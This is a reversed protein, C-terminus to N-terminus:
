CPGQVIQGPKQLLTTCPSYAPTSAQFGPTAHLPAPSFADGPDHATGPTGSLYDLGPTGIGYGPLGPTLGPTGLHVSFTDIAWVLWDNGIMAQSAEGM